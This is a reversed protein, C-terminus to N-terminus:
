RWTNGKLWAYHGCTGTKIKTKPAMQTLRVRQGLDQRLQSDQCNSGGRNTASGLRIRIRSRFVVLSEAMSVVPCTELECAYRKMNSGTCWIRSGKPRRPVTEQLVNDLMRKWAAPQSDRLAEMQLLAKSRQRTEGQRM